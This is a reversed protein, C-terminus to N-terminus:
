EDPHYEKMKKHLTRTKIYLRVVLGLMVALATLEFIDTLFAGVHHPDNQCIYQRVTEILFRM